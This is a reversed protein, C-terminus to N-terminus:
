VEQCEESDCIAFKMQSASMDIIVNTFGIEELIPKIDDIYFIKDIGPPGSTGPPLKNKLITTCVVM